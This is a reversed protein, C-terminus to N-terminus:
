VYHMLWTQWFTWKRPQFGSLLHSHACLVTHRHLRGYKATFVFSLHCHVICTRTCFIMIVDHFRFMKRTEPGKHPSNVLWRHIGRFLGTVRLKSTKKSRPGFLRHLLCDHPQHNSVGDRENHRWRLSAVKDFASTATMTRMYELSWSQDQAIWMEKSISKLQTRIDNLIDWSRVSM